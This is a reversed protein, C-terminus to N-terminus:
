GEVLGLKILEAFLKEREIPKVLYGSAVGDHFSRIVTKPDSLATTMIVPVPDLGRQAEMDRIAALASLGDQVPMMIDMLVLAYPEGKGHALAFAELAEQGNVALDVEFLPLLLRKLIERSTFEDEVILAKM